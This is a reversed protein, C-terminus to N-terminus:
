GQEAAPAAPQRSARGLGLNIKGNPSLTLSTNAIVREYPVEGNAGARANIALSIVTDLTRAIGSIAGLVQSARETPVLVELICSLVKEDLIHPDLQGTKTDSMLQTIPNKPEFRVGLPALGLSLRQVDRFRAGTGPRGFEILIGVEGPKLRGTVDNTKIEETGRGKVGTGVHKVTPDSFVQRIVRPWALENPVLATTPCIDVPQDYRLRLLGLFRRFGRVFWPGLDEPTLFRLCAGCEVCEDQNINARREEVYIAGMPCVAVCNGCGVCRTRDILM